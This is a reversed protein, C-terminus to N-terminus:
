SGAARGKKKLIANLRGWGRGPNVMKWSVTLGASMAEGLIADPDGIYGYPKGRVYVQSTKPDFFNSTDSVPGCITNVSFIGGPRLVRAIERFMRPRDAGIVCHTCSGDLVIDFEGDRFPSLEAVNLAMFRADVGKGKAVEQAWAVACESIDVGSVQYGRLALEV